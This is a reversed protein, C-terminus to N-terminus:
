VDVTISESEILGLSPGPVTEALDCTLLPLFYSQASSLITQFYWILICVRTTELCKILDLIVSSVLYICCLSRELCCRSVRCSRVSKTPPEGYDLDKKPVTIVVGAPYM